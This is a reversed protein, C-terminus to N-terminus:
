LLRIFYLRIVDNQGQGKSWPTSDDNWEFPALVGDSIKAFAYVLHTCLTVDINEPFFKAKDNRYQSWNTYYCVVKKEVNTDGLFTM